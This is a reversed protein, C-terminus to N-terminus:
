NKMDLFNINNTTFLIIKYINYIICMSYNSFKSCIVIYIQNQLKILSIDHLPKTTPTSDDAKAVFIYKTVLIDCKALFNPSEGKAHFMLRRFKEDRFTNVVFKNNQHRFRKM